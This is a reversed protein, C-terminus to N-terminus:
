NEPNRSNYIEIEKHFDGEITCKESEHSVISELTYHFYYIGSKNDYKYMCIKGTLPILEFGSTPTSIGAIGIPEDGKGSDPLNNLEHTYEFSNHVSGYDVNENFVISYEKNLVPFSDDAPIGMLIFWFNSPDSEDEKRLTTQLYFIDGNKFLDALPMLRPAMSSALKEEVTAYDYLKVGNVMAEGYNTKLSLIDVKKCGVTLTAFFLLISVFRICKEM